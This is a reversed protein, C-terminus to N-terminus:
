FYSEESTMNINMKLLKALSAMEKDFTNLTFEEQSVLKSFEIATSIHIADLTKCKAAEKKLLMIKEIDEDIIRINIEQFYENLESTKKSLWSTHLKTKNHEYTRRLVTITELKLLISSVRISANNWLALAENKRKEDLLIALLISSDFYDLM